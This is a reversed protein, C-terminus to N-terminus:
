NNGWGGNGWGSNGWGGNGWGGNGGFMSGGWYSTRPSYPYGGRQGAAAEVDRQTAGRESSGYPEYDYGRQDRAYRSAVSRSRRSDKARLKANRSHVSHEAPAPEIRNYLGSGAPEAAQPAAAALQPQQATGSAPPTAAPQVPQPAGSVPPAAPAPSAVAPAAPQPSGHPDGVVKAADLAPAAGDGATGVIAPKHPPASGMFAFIGVGGVVAGTAGAIAVIQLTRVFRGFRAPWALEPYLLPQM